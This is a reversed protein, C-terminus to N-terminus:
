GNNEIEVAALQITGKQVPLINAPLAQLPFFRAEIVEQEQLKITQIPYSQVLRARYYVELRLKYGSVIKVLEIDQIVLGTEEFVERTLANELNEGSKVIGGPLGWVDPVWHRHRQLLINGSQDAIVGSVSIMFKSNFLWLFRWQLHGSFRRWIQFLLDLIM